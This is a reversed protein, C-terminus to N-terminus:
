HWRSASDTTSRSSLLSLSPALSASDTPSLFENLLRCRGRLHFCWVFLHSRRQFLDFRLVCCHSCCCCCFGQGWIFFLIFHVQINSQSYCVTLRMEEGETKLVPKICTIPFCWKRPSFQFFCAAELTRCRESGTSQEAPDSCGSGLKM